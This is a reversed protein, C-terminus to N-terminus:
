SNRIIRVWERRIEKQTKKDIQEFENNIGKRDLIDCEIRYAIRKADKKRVKM